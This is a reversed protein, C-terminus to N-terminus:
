VLSLLVAARGALEARLELERAARHRIAEVPELAGPEDEAPRVRVVPAPHLDLQSGRAAPGPELRRVRLRALLREDGSRQRLRLLHPQVREQALQHELEVM